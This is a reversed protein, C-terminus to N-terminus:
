EVGTNPIPRYKSNETVTFKTILYGDTFEVILEHEGISLTKLYEKNLTMILSGETTEFEDSELAKGDVAVVNFKLSNIRIFSTQM